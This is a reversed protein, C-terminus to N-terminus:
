RNPQSSVRGPARLLGVLQTHGMLTSGLKYSFLEQSSQHKDLM